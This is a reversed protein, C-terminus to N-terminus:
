KAAWSKLLDTPKSRRGVLVLDTLQNVEGGVYSLTLQNVEGGLYSLTLQNPPKIRRKVLIFDTIQSWEGGVQQLLKWGKSCSVAM